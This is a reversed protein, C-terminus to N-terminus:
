LVSEVARVADPGARREIVVTATGDAAAAAIVEIGATRLRGLIAGLASADLDGTAVIATYDGGDVEFTADGVSLLGEGDEIAGVGSRMSVSARAEPPAYEDLEEAYRRLAAGVAETDGVDLFRAAATYNVIGARLGDYIFPHERVASRTEAAVTM